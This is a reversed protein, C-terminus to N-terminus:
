RGKARTPLIFGARRKATEEEGDIKLVAVVYPWPVFIEIGLHSSGKADWTADTKLTLGSHHELNVIRGHVPIAASKAPLGLTPSILQRSWPFRQFWGADIVVEVHDETKM